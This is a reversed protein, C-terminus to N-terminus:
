EHVAVEVKRPLGRWKQITRELRKLVVEVAPWAANAMLIAFCVTEEYLGYRRFLMTLVGALVGFALRMGNTKPLGSPDTLFFVAAFLVSGAALELIVSTLREAQIRPFFFAMAACALLFGLPAIVSSPKRFLFYLLGALFLITCGTGMASPIHGILIDMFTQADEYSARGSRLLASLATDAVYDAGGQMPIPKPYHFVASPFCVTLFSFGAAAPVFPVHMLGGFPLKVVCIAFLSGLVPLYYPATAPLMLAITAGIVISYLDPKVRGKKALMRLLFDAFFASLTGTLVLRIVREGYFFWAVLLTMTLLILCNIAYKRAEASTAKPQQM